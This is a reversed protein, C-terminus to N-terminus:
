RVSLTGMLQKIISGAGLPIASGYTGDRVLLSLRRLYVEQYIGQRVPSIGILYKCVVTAYMVAIQTGDDLPYLSLSRQLDDLFVKLNDAEHEGLHLYLEILWFLLELIDGPIANVSLISGIEELM